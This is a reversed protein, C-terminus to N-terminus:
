SSCYLHVILDYLKTFIPEFEKTRKMRVLCEYMERMFSYSTGLENSREHARILILLTALEDLGHRNILKFFPSGTRLLRWNDSQNILWINGTNEDHQLIYHQLGTEIAQGLRVLEKKDSINGSLLAWIPHQLIRATGPLLEDVASVLERNKINGGSWYRFFDNRYRKCSQGISDGALEDLARPINAVREVGLRNLLVSVYYKSRIEIVPKPCIFFQDM